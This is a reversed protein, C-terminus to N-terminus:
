ALFPGEFRFETLHTIIKILIEQTADQADEPVHFIIVQVKFGQARKLIYLTKLQWTHCFVVFKYSPKIFVYL